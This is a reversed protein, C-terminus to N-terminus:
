VLMFYINTNGFSHELKLQIQKNFYMVCNYTTNNVVCIIRCHATGPPLMFLRLLTTELSFIKSPETSNLNLALELHRTLISRLQHMNFLSTQFSSSQPEYSYSNKEM